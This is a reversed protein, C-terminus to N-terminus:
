PLLTDLNPPSTLVGDGVALDALRQIAARNIEAPWKPLQLSGRADESIQTYSGLIARVEDPHSDAYALSEKMAETFRTVLDPNSAILQTSTFYVAVCLAPDVDAYTGVIKWGKSTAASLFPEVVFIADVQDSDLAAVMNPFPLEVFSVKTPDGGNTRVISKVSTDVINKLTNTAVKKGELQRANTIAPDKVVIGGFDDAPNGTSNVGNSVVKIPV